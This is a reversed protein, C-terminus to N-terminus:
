GNDNRVKRGCFPCYKIFVPLVVTDGKVVVFHVATKGDPDTCWFCRDPMTLGGTGFEEQALLHGDQRAIDQTSIVVNQVGIRLINRIIGLGYLSLSAAV